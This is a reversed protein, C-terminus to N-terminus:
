LYRRYTPYALAHRRRNGGVELITPGRLFTLLPANNPQCPWNEVYYYYCSRYSHLFRHQVALSRLMGCVRGCSRLCPGAQGGDAAKQWEGTGVRGGATTPQPRTRLRGGRSDIRGHQGARGPCRSTQGCRKRGSRSASSRGALLRGAIPPARAPLGISSKAVTRRTELLVGVSHQTALSLSSGGLEQMM